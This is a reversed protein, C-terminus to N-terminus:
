KLKITISVEKPEDDWNVDPFLHRDICMMIGTDSEWYGNKRDGTRRYFKNAWCYLTLAGDECRAIHGNLTVADNMLDERAQKYGQEYSGRAINRAEQTLFFQAWEEANKADCPFGSRENENPKMFKTM